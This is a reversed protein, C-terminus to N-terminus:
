VLDEMKQKSWQMSTDMTGLYYACVIAIDLHELMFEDITVGYIKSGVMKKRINEAEEKIKHKFFDNLTTDFSIKFADDM